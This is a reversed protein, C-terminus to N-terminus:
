RNVIKDIILAVAKNEKIFEDRLKDYTDKNGKNNDIKWQKYTALASIVVSQGKMSFEMEGSWSTRYPTEVGKVKKFLDGYDSIRQVMDKDAQVTRVDELFGAYAEGTATAAAYDMDHRKAIADSWDIPQFSFDYNSSNEGGDKTISGPGSYLGHYAFDSNGGTQRQDWKTAKPNFTGDSDYYYHVVGKGLPGYSASNYIGATTGHMKNIEADSSKYHERVLIEGYPYHHISVYELGELERGDTVRNESFAYTSNHRYDHSLPDIQIFRGIQPDHSRYKFQIYNIGLEDDFRQEQFTQEKNKPEGFALAKSSIGSMTLGFPYYDTEELLAGRNHIVQLNDFFVDIKSENSCYVYLYGNKTIDGTSIGAAGGHSKLVGDAGVADFGSNNGQLVPKFQEDFLIWNIYAKPQTSTQQQPGFLQSITAPIGPTGNLAAGTIGRHGAAASSGVFATLLDLIPIPDPSGSVGGGATKWYSKGFIRVEDGAMVKLTIGLGMKATGSNANLRYLKDSNGTANSNPNNNYPPNGNNNQYAPIAMANGKPVVNAAEVSYYNKEVAVASTNDNINGELTAAPYVDQKKEDTLVVRTNGLHDKIFYDVAFGAATTSTAAVPRIRGEEQGLFQLQGNEYLYGGIYTTTTAKSPNENYAKEDVRKELKNGAADFIYTITGKQGQQNDWVRVRYPLNLYNYDIGNEVPLDPEIWFLGKNYDLVMNGSLDYQYDQTRNWVNKNVFDGLKSGTDNMADVVQKLKNSNTLYSYSLDDIMVNSLGKLGWQKMALINGNADYASHTNQGDGMQMDFNINNVNDGFASGNYQSFDGGLLRNLKDYSFGYARQEGDGRSRWKTGAINGNYQNTSFGWDYNLEMGFWPGGAATSQGNAYPTNIGKLWGRINYEHQLTELPTSTYNGNADKQQGLKKTKLQGLADYDLESITTALAPNADGAQAFVDKTTKLLRLAHDYEMNSRTAMNIDAAPNQHVMFSSLVQGTFNYLNTTIDTGGKYNGSHIQIPRSRDDYFSTTELWSGQSLDNPNELVRIRTGTVLGKTNAAPQAPANVAHLNNGAQLKTNYANTYQTNTWAYDDYYTLTLANFTYGAPLPNGSVAIATSFAAGIASGGIEATFHNISEFGPELIIAQTAQKLGSQPTNLTLIAQTSAPQNGNINQTGGVNININDLHTKLDERTLTFTLMGTLVPRNLADYLTAMWQSKALMNVDQTFVLRDRKDYLMYVWDAGPVKKAIMRKREDYEYRFCLEKVIDETFQWNNVLLAVAKPPIVFRLQNFDDYVYYTCLFGTYGSYDAAMTADVQVKKLIVLGEKDKYEVVANGQEDTTVNKYLEGAAYASNTYPINDSTFPNNNDIDWIRVADSTTNVLYQMSVGRDSGAWSNGPALTKNVRNLPSAEFNTKGYFVQEGPYQTQLFNKQETFPDLRFKGDAAISIYPLFKHQERGQDDYEMPAVMDKPSAGPSSQRAVTQLPRGLGDVYQTAEKIHKYGDSGSAAFSFAQESNYPGMAEWTRVYNVTINSNYAAPLYPTFGAAPAPPQTGGVVPKNAPPQAQLPLLGFSIPLVVLVIKRVVASFNKM